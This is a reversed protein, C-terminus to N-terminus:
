RSEAAARSSAADVDDRKTVTSSTSNLYRRDESVQTRETPVAKERADRRFGIVHAPGNGRWENLPSGTLMPPAPKLRTGSTRREPQLRFPRRATPTPKVSAGAICQRRRHGASHDRILPHCDLGFFRNANLKVPRRVETRRGYTQRGEGSPPSFGEASQLRGWLGDPQDARVNGTM